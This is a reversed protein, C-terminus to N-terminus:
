THASNFLSSGLNNNDDIEGSLLKNVAKQLDGGSIEMARAAQRETYGMDLLPSMAKRAAAKAAASRAAEGSSRRKSEFLSSSRMNRGSGARSRSRRRPQSQPEGARRPFSPSKVEKEERFRYDNMNESRIMPSLPVARQQDLISGYSPPGDKNMSTTNNLSSHGNLLPQATNSISSHSPRKVVAGITNLLRSASVSSMGGKRGSSKIMTLASMTSANAACAKRANSLVCLAQLAQLLLITRPRTVDEWSWCRRLADTLINVATPAFDKFSDFSVNYPPQVLPILLQLAADHLVSAEVDDIGNAPFACLQLLVNINIERSVAPLPSSWLGCLALYKARNGTGKDSIVECLCRVLLEIPVEAVDMLEPDAPPLSSSLYMLISVANLEAKSYDDELVKMGRRKRNLRLFSFLAYLVSGDGDTWGRLQTAGCAGTMLDRLEDLETLSKILFTAATVIEGSQLKEENKMTLASVLVSPLKEQVVVKKRTAAETGSVAALVELGTRMAFKSSEIIGLLAPLGGTGAFVAATQWRQSTALVGNKSTIMAAVIELAMLKTSDDSFGGGNQMMEVFTPLAAVHSLLLEANSMNSPSNKPRISLSIYALLGQLLPMHEKLSSADDSGGNGGVLLSVLAPICDTLISREASTWSTGVNSDRYNSPPIFKVGVGMNWVAKPDAKKIMCSLMIAAGCRQTSPANSRGLLLSFAKLAVPRTAETQLKSWLEDSETEGSLREFVDFACQRVRPNESGLLHLLEPASSCLQVRANPIACCHPIITIAHQQLFDGGASGRSQSISAGVLSILLSLSGSSTLQEAVTSPDKECIAVMAAMARERVEPPVDHRQMVAVAATVDSRSVANAWLTECHGLQALLSSFEKSRVHNSLILDILAPMEALVARRSMDPDQGLNVLLTLAKPILTKWREENNSVSTSDSLLPLIHSLYQRGASLVAARAEGQRSLILLVDLAGSVVAFTTVQAPNGGANQNQFTSSGPLSSMAGSRKSEALLQLLSFTGGSQVITSSVRPSMCLHLLATLADMLLMASDCDSDNAHRDMMLTGVLGQTAPELAVKMIAEPSSSLKRCVRTAAAVIAMKSSGLQQWLGSLGGHATQDRIISVMPGGPRNSDQQQWLPSNELLQVFINLAEVEFSSSCGFSGIHGFYRIGGEALLADASPAFSALARLIPNVVKEARARFQGGQLASTFCYLLRSVGNSEVLTAIRSGLSANGSLAIQPMGCLQRLVELIFLHFSTVKVKKMQTSSPLKSTIQAVFYPLKKLHKSSPMLIEELVEPISVLVSVLKLANESGNQFLEMSADLAGARAVAICTNADGSACLAALAQCAGEKDPGSRLQEALVAIGGTDAVKAATAPAAALTVMLASAASKLEENESYLFNSALNVGGCHVVTELGQKNVNALEGILRLVDAAVYSDVRGGACLSIVNAPANSTLMSAVSQQDGRLSCMISLATLQIASPAGGRRTDKSSSSVKEVMSSVKGVGGAGKFDSRCKDHEEDGLRSLDSNGRFRAYANRQSNLNVDTPSLLLAIARLTPLLIEDAQADLLLLLYQLAGRERVFKRVKKRRQNDEEDVNPTILRLFATVAATQISQGDGALLLEIIKEILEIFPTLNDDINPSLNQLLKLLLVIQENSGNTMANSLVSLNASYEMLQNWFMWLPESNQLNIGECKEEGNRRLEECRCIESFAYLAKSAGNKVRSAGNELAKALTTILESNKNFIEGIAALELTEEEEPMQLRHKSGFSSSPYMSAAAAFTSAIGEVLVGPAQLTSNGFENVLSSLLNLRLQLRKEPPIPRFSYEALSFKMSEGDEVYCYHIGDVYDFVVADKRWVFSTKINLLEGIQAHPLPEDEEDEKEDQHTVKEGFANSSPSYPNFHPSYTQPSSSGQPQSGASRFSSGQAGSALSRASPSAGASAPVKSEMMQMTDLRVLQALGPADVSSPTSSPVPDPRVWSTTQNVHDIYYIRGKADRGETWGPPLPDSTSSQPPDWSTQKTVDNVYYLRGDSTYATRWGVPLNEM